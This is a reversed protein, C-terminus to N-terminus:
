HGQMDRLAAMRESVPGAGVTEPTRPLDMELGDAAFKRVRDFLSEALDDSEEADAAYVLQSVDSAIAELRARMGTADFRENGWNRMVMEELDLVNDKLAALQDEDLLADALRRPEVRVNQPAPEHPETEALLANLRSEAGSIRAEAKRLDVRAESEPDDAAALTDRLMAIAEDKIGGKKRKELRALLLRAQEELYSNRQREINLATLLDEVDARYDGSLQDAGIPERDEAPTVPEFAVADADGQRVRAALAASDRELDRIRVMLEQERVQLAGIADYQEDRETRLASLESAAADLEIVRAALKERLAEIRMELRRTAIAFDARLKDKDARFENLTLPTAAEMRRRTLRVARQWIAPGIAIALLGAGLFGLAFYMVYEIVM